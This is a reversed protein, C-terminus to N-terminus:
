QKRNRVTIYLFVPRGFLKTLNAQAAERITNLVAGQEGIIM